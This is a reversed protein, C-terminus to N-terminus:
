QQLKFPFKPKKGVTNVPFIIKETFKNLPVSITAATTFVM